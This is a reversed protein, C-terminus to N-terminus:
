KTEQITIQQTKPKKVGIGTMSIVSKVVGRDKVYWQSSVMRYKAGNITVQGTSKVLLAEQTGVPTTVRARGSVTFKLDQEFKQGPMELKGTNKWTAGVPVKSPMDLNHVDGTFKTSKIIFVGDRELSVTETGLQDGLGGTREVEYIARGKEVSKLQMTQSGSFSPNGEMTVTYNIPKDSSLGYWRYGDTKLDGPLVPPPAQKESKAQSATAAGQANAASPQATAVEPQPSPGSQGTGTVTTSSQCGFFLLASLGLAILSRPKM